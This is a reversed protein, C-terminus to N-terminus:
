RSLNRIPASGKVTIMAPTPLTSQPYNRVTLLVDIQSRTDYDVAVAVGANNFQFRYSVYIPQNAPLALNPNSNFQIYGAKYRPQIIASVFNQPDYAAPPNPYGLLAYDPERIDSYNIKYQNIGPNSMTRTYKVPNGYNPGPNQDPGIIVESGPVIRGHPFGIAPDPDLPSLTGDASSTVPLYMFRHTQGPARLEPHDFWVKNFLGNINNLYAADYFNGVPTPDTTPTTDPGTLLGPLNKDARPPVAGTPNDQGMYEIPFSTLIKGQSTSPVFPLFKARIAPIGMWGSRANSAEMGRRFPYVWGNRIQQEYAIIDFVEIDDTPDGEGNRDDADTDLDPDYKYIRHSRVGVRPDLRTVFYENNNVDTRNYGDPYVRITPSSWSPRRTLLTDSASTSSGDHENGLALISGGTAPENSVAAPRFQVLASIRPINGIALLQRSTKNIMPQIADFRNFETVIQSARIWNAIRLAKAQREAPTLVPGGPADQAMFFPDDMIPEGTGDDEFFNTNVIFTGTGPNYIKPAVEARRIVYLNDERGPLAQWRTGGTRTYDVYPNYYQAPDLNNPALPRKLSIYYRVITAGPAVPFVPQGISSKLTPDELGTYPNILAGSPGRLTPDGRLPVLVDLKTYDAMLTVPTGDMGPVVIALQGRAGANDRVGPSNSVENVIREILRRAREQGDAIGQASRTFNFSQVIPILLLALIVSTIAIVVLLEILTFARVKRL